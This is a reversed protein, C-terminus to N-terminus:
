DGKHLRVNAFLIPFRAQSYFFLSFRTVAKPDDIRAGFTWNTDACKYDDSKLNFVVSQWEDKKPLAVDRSEYLDNAVWVGLAVRVPEQVKMDMVLFKCDTLDIPRNMTVVWKKKSGRKHVLSRYLDEGRGKLEVDVRNAWDHGQWRDETGPAPKDLVYEPDDVIPPPRTRPGSEEAEAGSLKKQLAVAGQRVQEARPDRCRLRGIDQLVERVQERAPTEEGAEARARAGELRSQLEDVTERRENITESLSAIRREAEAIREGAIDEHDRLLRLVTRWQEIAREEQCPPVPTRARRLASLV